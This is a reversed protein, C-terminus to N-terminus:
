KTARPATRVTDFRGHLVSRERERCGRLEDDMVRSNSQIELGIPWHQESAGTDRREGRRVASVRIASVRLSRGRHPPTWALSVNHQVNDMHPKAALVAEADCLDVSWAM